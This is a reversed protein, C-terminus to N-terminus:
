SEKESKVEAERDRYGSEYGIDWCEKLFKGVNEPAIQQGTKTSLWEKFTM